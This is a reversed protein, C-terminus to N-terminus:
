ALEATTAAASYQASTAPVERMNREIATENAPAPASSRGSGEGACWEDSEVGGVFDLEGALDRLDVPLVRVDLETEAVGRALAPLELAARDEQAPFVAYRAIQEVDAVVHLHEATGRRAM